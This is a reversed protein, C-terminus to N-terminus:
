QKRADVKLIANKLIESTYSWKYINQITDRIKNMTLILTSPDSKERALFELVANEWAKMDNPNLLNPGFFVFEKMATQNSCLTFTGMAASELPPIGFGECFSPFFAIRAANYFHKLDEWPVSSFHNLRDGSLKKVESFLAKTKKSKVDFAGVLVLETGTEYLKLNKYLKLLLEHNKRDEIRSVYILHNQVGYKERILQQSVRKDLPELFAENLANPLVVIDKQLNFHKKLRQASYDSVTTLIEARKAAWWFLFKNKYYYSKPFYQPFDLFLVDHITVIYKCRKSLFLPLYYNFHAYDIDLDKILRPIEFALRKFKNKSKLKVFNLNDKESFEKKLNEIDYAALYIKLYGAETNLNRYIGDLFTRTGQFKGDFVHADVLLRIVKKEEFIIKQDM